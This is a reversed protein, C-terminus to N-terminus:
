RGRFRPIISADHSSVPEAAGPWMKRRAAPANSRREAPLMTPRDLQFDDGVVQVGTSEYTRALGPQSSGGNRGPGPRTSCRWWSGASGTRPAEAADPVRGATGRPHGGGVDAIVEFGYRDVATMSASVVDPRGADHHCLTVLAAAHDANMHGIIGAADSWLPIPDRGRRLRRRRGLEHARVRRRLPHRHGDAARVPLRRLRRLLRGPERGSLRFPGVAREGADTVGVAIGLLTVRGSALPDAGPPRTRSSSCAPGHIPTWTTPTSPWRASSFLLAARM